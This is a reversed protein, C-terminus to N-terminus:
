RDVRVASTIINDTLNELGESLGEILIPENHNAPRSLFETAKLGKAAISRAILFGTAKYSMFEGNKRQFQFRRRKVWQVIPQSPIMKSRFQFPSNPAKKSSKWGKVGQDQFAGYEEALFRFELSNPNFKLEYGLSNYLEKTVNKDKRTLNSRAEKITKKAYRDFVGKFAAKDMPLINADMVM